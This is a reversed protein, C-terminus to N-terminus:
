FSSCAAVISTVGNAVLHQELQGSQFALGLGRLTKFAFKLKRTYAIDGETSGLDFGIMHLRSDVHAGFLRRLQQAYTQACQLEEQLVQLAKIAGGLLRDYENGTEDTASFHRLLLNTLEDRMQRALTALHRVNGEYICAWCFKRVPSQIQVFKQYLDKRYPLFAWERLWMIEPHLDGVPEDQVARRRAQLLIADRYEETSAHKRKFLIQVSTSEGYIENASVFLAPTGKRTTLFSLPTGGDPHSM